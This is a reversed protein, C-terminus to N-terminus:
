DEDHAAAVQQPAGKVSATVPRVPRLAPGGYNPSWPESPDDKVNAVGARPPLQAPRGDDEMEVPIPAPPEGRPGGAYWGAQSYSHQSEHACGSVSLALLSLALVPGRVRRDRPACGRNISSM